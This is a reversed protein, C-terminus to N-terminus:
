ASGTKAIDRVAWLLRDMQVDTGVSVRVGGVLLPTDFYRVLIGRARLAEYM